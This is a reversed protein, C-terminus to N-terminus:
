FGCITCVGSKKATEFMLRADGKLECEECLLILTVNKGNCYLHRAVVSGDGGNNGKGVLVCFSKANTKLAVDCVRMGANEMLLASPIGYKNISLYDILSAKEVDALLM